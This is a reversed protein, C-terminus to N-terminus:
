WRLRRVAGNRRAIFKRLKYKDIGNVSYVTQAILKVLSLFLIFPISLWLM